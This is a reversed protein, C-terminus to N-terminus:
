VDAAERQALEAAIDEIPIRTLDITLLQLKPIFFAAVRLLLDAAARPDTEATKM